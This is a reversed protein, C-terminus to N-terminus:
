WGPASLAYFSTFPGTPNFRLGLGTLNGGGGGSFEVTGRRNVTQPYKSPVAFAIHGLPPLIFGDQQFQNGNEDRFIAIVQTGSVQSPNALAIGIIYGHTNDFEMLFRTTSQNEIPVVAESDPQGPFHSRLVAFGGMTGFTSLFAWGQTTVAAGGATEYVRSGKPPLSDSIQSARGLGTFPFAVKAGDDGYFTLTFNATSTGLNVLTIATTWQVGDVIQSIVADTSFVTINKEAASLSLAALALLTLFRM